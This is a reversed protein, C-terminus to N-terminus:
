AAKAKTAKSAAVATQVITDFTKPDMIAIESLMKRNLLIGANKLGNMFVSYRTGRMKCAATLRTIWLSRFNRKKARRDRYAYWGSSRIAQRMEGRQATRSKSYGKTMQRLRAKQQTRAAGKRVRPM